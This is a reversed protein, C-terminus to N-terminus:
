DGTVHPKGDVIEFRFAYDMSFATNKRLQSINGRGDDTEQAVTMPSFEWKSVAAQCARFFALDDADSSPDLNRVDSVKGTDDVIAKVRVIVLPLGKAVLADPYAPADRVIPQAGFAHESVKLKYQDGATAPLASYSVAGEKHPSEVRYPVSPATRCGTASAAVILMAVGVLRGSSIAIMTTGQVLPSQREFVSRVAMASLSLIGWGGGEVQVTGEWHVPGGTSRTDFEQDDMLPRIDFRKIGSPAVRPQRGDL